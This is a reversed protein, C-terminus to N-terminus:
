DKEALFLFWDIKKKYVQVQVQYLRDKQCVTVKQAFLFLPSERIQWMNSQGRILQWVKTLRQNNAV